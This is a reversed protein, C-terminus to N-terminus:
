HVPQPLSAALARVEDLLPARESDPLAAIFSTSAVREVVGEVSLRQENPVSHEAVPEFLGAETALTRWALDRHRPTDGRRPAILQEIRAHIPAELDRDNSVLALRGGPRLVRHIEPMARDHDFWHFAQAVTVLDVSGDTLPLEEASGIRADVDPSRARLEALMAELPEVAKVRARTRALARTFKGTGAA